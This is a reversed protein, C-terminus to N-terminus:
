HGILSALTGFKIANPYSDAWLFHPQLLAVPIKIINEMLINAPSTSLLADDLPKVPKNLQDRNQYADNWKINRKNLIFNDEYIYLKKFDKSLEDLDYSNIKLVMKDLKEIATTRTQNNIWNLSTDTQLMQKFVTKLETWMTEIDSSTANTNYNRFILNDLVNAFHKNTEAICKEVKEAETKGPTFFFENVLRYFIYNAVVQKPTRRLVKIVNEHYKSNYNYVNEVRENLSVNVLREVDIVPAYLQQMESLSTLQTLQALNLDETESVLGHALQVEFEMLEKATKNALKKEVGLFTELNSAMMTQYNKRYVATHNSLYMSRTILPFEQESIYVVNVKNNAIDITVEAGILITVGFNFNIKSVTEVWDFDAESWNDGHLVPMSGFQDILQKYQEQLSRDIETVAMCSKYFDKVILDIRHERLRFKDEKNLLVRLKQDRAENLKEFLGTTMKKRSAKNVVAWNGCSFEYFDDCPNVSKNMFSEIDATKAQRAINNIRGDLINTRFPMAGSVYLLALGCLVIGQLQSM